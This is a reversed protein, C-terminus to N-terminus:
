RHTSSDMTREGAEMGPDARVILVPCPAHAACATSVSGLLRGAFGGRGRSGLVLMRAGRGADILVQAPHGHVAHSVIQAPPRDGFARGLADRLVKEAEEAPNWLVPTFTGPAAQYNWAAIAEVPSDLADAFVRAHRLAAVSLDSGDVGVIIPQRGQDTM